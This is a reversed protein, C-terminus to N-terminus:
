REKKKNLTNWDRKVQWATAFSGYTRRALEAAPISPELEMIAWMDARYTPGITLRTRYTSHCKALEYPSLIDKPRHRITNEPVRLLSGAFRSDEGSRKVMFDTSSQLLDIRPGKYLIQLKKLRRDKKLWHAVASWFCRTRESKLNAVLQILRNANIRESHIELWDVLLSLARLDEGDIGELSTAVLTNEINPHKSGREAFLMGIGVMDATLSDKSQYTPPVISRNYGM